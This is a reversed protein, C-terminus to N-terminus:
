LKPHKLQHYTWQLQHLYTSYGAKEADVVVDAVWDSAQKEPMVTKDADVHSSSSFLTSQTFVGSM